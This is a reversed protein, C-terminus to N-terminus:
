KTRRPARESARHDALRLVAEMLALEWTGYRARVREYLV